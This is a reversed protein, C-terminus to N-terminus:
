HTTLLHASYVAYDPMSRLEALAQVKNKVKVGMAKCMSRLTNWPLTTLDPMTFEFSPVLGDSVCEDATRIVKNDYWDYADSGVSDTFVLASEFRNYLYVICLTSLTVLAVFLVASILAVRKTFRVAQIAYHYTVCYSAYANSTALLELQFM